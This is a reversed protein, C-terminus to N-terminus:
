CRLFSQTESLSKPEEWSLVPEVKEQFMAIGNSGIVYGLFEVEQTKWICKEPFVALGHTQLRELVEKVLSDHEKETKTYILIDDMYALVGVDLLDSLIHNMMDQFTSPANTLGFPMVQFEFLGYRTRFAIKWEDREKIRILHFGYKLDLKTFWQVGQIWDQLEQKLPLPYRNPITIKNLARDDVCLRLGRRHPKPVFLIPSGAPSTSRKIKGTHEMEKLCERLTRLEEESLPYTPGWPATEGEKLNIKCDYPRHQPLADAAEKGMIGLYQRFEMSVRERVDEEVASVYGIIQAQPNKAVEEEWSLFFESTEFRTCSALCRARNFRIEQNTWAGQPPHTTIWDFPLFADIEPEMPSIEFKERSYHKRHQLLMPETYFQGEGKVSERTYNEISHPRQHVKKRIGLKEVTQQNLLAVCCGTDLLVQIRQEKGKIHLIMTIIPRTGSHVTRKKSSTRTSPEENRRKKSLRCIIMSTRPQLQERGRLFGLESEEWLPAVADTEMTEVAAVKQQKTAPAEEGKEDERGRKQGAAAAKWPATPLPTGQL